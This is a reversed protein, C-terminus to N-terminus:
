FFTACSYKNGGAAMLMLLLQQQASLVTSLLPLTTVQDDRYRCTCWRWRNNITPGYIHVDLEIAHFHFHFHPPLLSVFRLRFDFGGWSDVGRPISKWTYPQSRWCSGVQDIEAICAILQAGRSFTRITSTSLYMMTFSSFLPCSLSLRCSAASLPLILRCGINGGFGNNWRHLLCLTSTSPRM